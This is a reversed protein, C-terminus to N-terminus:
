QQVELLEVDSGCFLRAAFGANFARPEGTVDGIGDAVAELVNVVTTETLVDFGGQHDQGSRLYLAVMRRIQGLDPVTRFNLKQRVFAGLYYDRPRVVHPWYACNPLDRDSGRRKCDRVAELGLTTGIRNAMDRFLPGHGSYAPEGDGLVEFQWQHIMEHLLIDDVFRDRGAQFDCGSEVHPHSGRVLSPRIRIQSRGGFGSLPGCDGYRRPTSPESLLLYPPELRSEFHDTNWARWNTFLRGLHERHWPEAHDLVFREFGRRHSLIEGTLPPPPPAPSRKSM